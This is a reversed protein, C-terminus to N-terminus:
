RRAALWADVMAVDQAIGAEEYDVRALAATTRALAHKGQGWLVRALAFRTEGVFVPAIEPRARIRLELAERLLLEARDADGQALAVKGLTTLPFANLVHQDGLAARRVELARQLWQAATDQDNRRYAAEGANAYATATQPHDWGLTDEWTHAARLYHRYAAEFDSRHLAANGLGTQAHGALASPEGTTSLAELASTFRVRADEYAGMHVLTNGLNILIPIRLQADDPRDLLQLGREHAQRARVFHGAEDAAAGVSQWAPALRRSDPGFREIQIELARELHELGSVIDGGRLLAQGLGRHANAEGVEDPEGAEGVIALAREYHARAEDYRGATLELAGQTRALFSRLEIREGDLRSVVAAAQRVTIMADDLQGQRIGQIFALLISARAVLADDPTTRLGALIEAAPGYDGRQELTGALQLAAKAWVSPPAPEVAADPVPVDSGAVVAGPVLLLAIVAILGVGARSPRRRPQPRSQELELLLAAVSPWRDSPEPELGRAIARGIREPVSADVLADRLAICLSYQDSRADAPRGGLVEPAMYRPTGGRRGLSRDVLTALGFDALRISGERGVLVNAPKFDRHVLGARHADVLGRGAAIFADVIRPWSRGRSLWAELDTGEILPMVLYTHDGEVGVDLVQVIYPSNIRALARAEDRCDGRTLKIAVRRDLQPDRATYVFGMGGWGVTGVVEYRGISLREDHGFMRRRLNARVRRVEVSEMPLVPRGFPSPDLPHRTTM